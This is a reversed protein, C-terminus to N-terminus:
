FPPPGSYDGVKPAEHVSQTAPLRTGCVHEAVVDYPPAGGPKYATGAPHGRVEFHSRHDLQLHGGVWRLCYTTRGLILAAAEGIASLPDIDCVAEGAILDADLGVIIRARCKRCRRVRARRTIGDADWLGQAELHRQLWGAIM